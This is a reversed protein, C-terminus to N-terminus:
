LTFARPLAQQIVRFTAIGDCTDRAYDTSVQALLCEIRTSVFALARELLSLRANKKTNTKALFFGFRL